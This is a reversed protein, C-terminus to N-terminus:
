SFGDVNEAPQLRRKSVFMEPQSPIPPQSQPVPLGSIFTENFYEGVDERPFVRNSMSKCPGCWVTYFDIFILKDQRKAEQAAEEFSGKWFRVGQANANGVMGALLITLLIIIKRM